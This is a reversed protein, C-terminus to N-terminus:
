FKGIAWGKFFAQLKAYKQDWDYLFLRKLYKKKRRKFIHQYKPYLQLMYRLNRAIYFYRWPAHPIYTKSSFLLHKAGEGLQHNLIINNLRIVQMDLTHLHCCLEDDVSDIFFDDRFGGTKTYGDVSLLNGSTMVVLCPEFRGKRHHKEIQGDCDPFPTLIGIQATPNEAIYTNAEKLYDAFSTINFKSDQDMTLIWDCGQAIAAQCGVNLAHAIGTNNHLPLYVINTYPFQQLLHSNDADSNDVVFVCKVHDAYFTIPLTDAQKPNYWVVVACLNEKTVTKM